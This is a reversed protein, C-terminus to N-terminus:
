VKVSVERIFSKLRGEKYTAKKLMEYYLYCWVNFFVIMSSRSLHLTKHFGVGLFLLFQKIANLKFRTYDKGQDKSLFSNLIKM